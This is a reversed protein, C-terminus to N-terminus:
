ALRALASQLVLLGAPAQAALSALRRAVWDPKAGSPGVASDLPAWVRRCSSGPAGSVQGARGPREAVM